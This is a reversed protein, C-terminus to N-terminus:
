QCVKLHKPLISFQVSRTTIVEGDFEVAFPKTAEVNLGTTPWSSTKELRDFTGSSLARLLHLRELMKMNQSLHAIFKGDDYSVENGYHLDGSFHPSKVVGLNTLFTTLLPRDPQVIQAKLNQFTFITRLAAYLIASSAHVRKLVRLCYGATNFLHNGEATLGVSANILFYRTMLQGNSEFAIQGVDRLKVTDFDIMCSINEMMRAPSFPKHFDNSSGLGIAGLCINRHHPPPAITLLMNMVQNVTGDGGAAVFDTEGSQLAKSITSQTSAQGNLAHTTAFATHQNVFSEIRKWKKMATGGAAMPNIFIIM